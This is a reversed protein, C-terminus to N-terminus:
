GPVSFSSDGVIYRNRPFFGTNLSFGINSYWIKLEHQKAIIGIGISKYGLMKAEDFIYDIIMKGLGNNRNEPIVALKELYFLEPDAKELAACGVIKEDSELIFYTVDRKFDANVWNDTCNSPNKPCNTKNFRFKDAVTQYSNRIIRTLTEVDSITAQRIKM